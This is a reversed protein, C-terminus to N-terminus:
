ELCRAVGAKVLSLEGKRTTRRPLTQPLGRGKTQQVVAEPVGAM